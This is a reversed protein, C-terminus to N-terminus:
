LDLGVEDAAAEFLCLLCCTDTLELAEEASLEGAEFATVVETCFM